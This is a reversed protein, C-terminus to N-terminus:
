TTGSAAAAKLYEYHTNGDSDPLCNITIDYGIVEDDKYVVDGIESIKGSPIVIRKATNDRLIMDIVWSSAPVDASNVNVTVGAALTGSVNGSGFVASLVDLNTCEILKLQFTDTKETMPVAVTDGGWAKIETSSPTNSNTVGDDSVYGLAKFAAALSASTSTPLSPGAVANFVAGTVVPKGVSVNAANNNSTPM